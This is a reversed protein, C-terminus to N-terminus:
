ALAGLYAVGLDQGGSVTLYYTNYSAGLIQQWENHLPLELSGPMTSVPSSVTILVM